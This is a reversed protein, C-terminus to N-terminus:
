NHVMRKVHLIINQAISNSSINSMRLRDNILNLKPLTNPWESPTPGSGNQNGFV